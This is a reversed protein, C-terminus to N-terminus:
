NKTIQEPNEYINGIVEIPIDSEIQSYLSETDGTTDGYHLVDFSATSDNYWVTLLVDVAKVIDGEYIETGNKDLLGTFQSLKYYEGMEPNYTCQDALENFTQTNSLWRKQIVDWARFKIKRM